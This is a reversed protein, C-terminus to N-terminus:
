ADLRRRAARRASPWHRVVAPVLPLVRRSVAGTMEFVRARRSSWPLGYADRIASPLLAATVVRALATVPRLIWPVPPYLIERALARATDTVAIDGSGLVADLHSRVEAERRPLRGAPIGLRPEVRAAEACYRDRDDITLEGIFQRYTALFVHMLTVHVWSLLDADHASYRTGAPFHGGPAALAGHVRDHIANIRAAAGGAEEEDGFTLSLMSEITRRLRRGRGHRERLFASHRAVGEAVLPHALQLLIAPAWGALLAIERHLRWTIAEPGLRPESARAGRAVGAGGPSVTEM